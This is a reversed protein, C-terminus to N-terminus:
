IIHLLVSVLDRKWDCFKNTKWVQQTVVAAGYGPYNIM